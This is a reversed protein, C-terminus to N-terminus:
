YYKYAISSPPTFHFTHIWLYIARRPKEATRETGLKHKPEGDSGQQSARQCIVAGVGWVHCRAARRPLPSALALVVRHPSRVRRGFRFALKITQAKIHAGPWAAHRQLVVAMASSAAPVCTYMADWQRAAHPQGGSEAPAGTASALQWSRSLLPAHACHAALPSHVFLGGYM